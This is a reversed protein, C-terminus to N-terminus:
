CLCVNCRWFMHYWGVTKLVLDNPTLPLGARWEDMDQKSGPSEFLVRRYNENAIPVVVFDHGSQTADEVFEDFSGLPTPATVGVSCNYFGDSM